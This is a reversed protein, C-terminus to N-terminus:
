HMQFKTSSPQTLWSVFNEGKYHQLLAMGNEIFAQIEECKVTSSNFLFDKQPMVQKAIAMLKEMGRSTLSVYKFKTKNKEIRVFNEKVLPPLLRSVTSLHWCGLRSIDSFTLPTESTSLIFLLHQQASSLGHEKDIHSWQDLISFYLARIMLVMQKKMENDM